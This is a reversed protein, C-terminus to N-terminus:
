FFFLLLNQLPLKKPYYYYQTACIQINSYIPLYKKCIVNMNTNFAVFIWCFFYEYNYKYYVLITFIIQGQIQEPFSFIALIWIEGVVTFSLSVFLNKCIKLKILPIILLLFFIDEFRTLSSWATLYRYCPFPPILVFTAICCLFYAHYFFIKNLTFM